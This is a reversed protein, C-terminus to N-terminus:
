KSVVYFVIVGSEERMENIATFPIDADSFIGMFDDESRQLFGDWDAIWHFARHDYRNADKFSIILKGRPNLLEYLTSFMRSLFDSQMYDFFGVSYIIDQKGFESMNLEHDFMRLANYKRLNVQNSLLPSIGTYSLREAAFSLADDDLDICTIKAKSKEIAPALEVVERCSGCAINLISPSQKTRLENRLINKLEKIRNKVALTLTLNLLYLALYYGLGESFPTNKYAYELMKYDGQYGQPWIRARNICYSKSLIPNTKEHFRIRADRIIKEDRVENEFEECSELVDSIASTVEKYIMDPQAQSSDTNCKNEIEQLRKMFLDTAIDLHKIQKGDLKVGVRYDEDHKICWQVLGAKDETGDNFWLMHGPKLPYDTQIGLGGDSIDVAKGKLHLFKRETSERSSIAFDVLQSFPRREFQRAGGNNFLVNQM